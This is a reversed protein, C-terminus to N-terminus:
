ASCSRFRAPVAYWRKPRYKALAQRGRGLGALKEGIRAKAAEAEARAEGCARVADQVAEEEEASLQPPNPQAGRGLAAFAGHAELLTAQIEEVERWSGAALAAALRRYLRVLEQLLLAKRHAGEGAM